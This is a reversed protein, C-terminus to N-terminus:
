LDNSPNEEAPLNTLSERYQSVVIMAKEYDESSVIIRNLPFNGGSDWPGFAGEGGYYIYVRIEANELLSEVLAIEQLTGSFVEVPIIEAPDKDM